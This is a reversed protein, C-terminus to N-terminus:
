EEMECIPNTVRPKNKNLACPRSPEPETQFLWNYKKNTLLKSFGAPIAIWKSKPQGGAELLLVSKKGSETLRNALICGATGGGVIVYDFTNM